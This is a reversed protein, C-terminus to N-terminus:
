EFILKVEDGTETKSLFELKRNNVFKWEHTNQVYIFFQHETLKEPELFSAMLTSRMPALSITRGSLTYPSSFLNPAGTGSIMQEDYKMTFIDGNGERELANRDFIIERGFAGDIHVAILKWDKGIGDAFNAYDDGLDMCTNSMFCIAALILGFFKKM